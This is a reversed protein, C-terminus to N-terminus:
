AVKSDPAIIYREFDLSLVVSLTHFIGIQASNPSYCLLDVPFKMQIPIYNEQNTKNNTMGFNYRLIASEAITEAIKTCLFDLVKM